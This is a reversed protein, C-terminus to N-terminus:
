LSSFATKANPYNPISLTFKSLPIHIKKVFGVFYLYFYPVLEACISFKCKSMRVTKTLLFAETWIFPYIGVERCASVVGTVKKFPIYELHFLSASVLLTKLGLDNLEWLMSVARAKSTYWSSNTEVYEISVGTKRAVVLVEKLREFNLFPEGGGIHVSKYGLRRCTELAREATAADMYEKPWHPSSNYLCHRCSSTCFYNTIIGGSILYKISLTNM